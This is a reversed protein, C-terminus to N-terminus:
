SRRVDHDVEHLTRDVVLQDGVVGYREYERIRLTLKASYGRNARSRTRPRCNTVAVKRNLNLRRVSVNMSFPDM